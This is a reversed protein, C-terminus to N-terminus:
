SSRQCGLDQDEPMLRCEGLLCVNLAMSRRIKASSYRSTGVTRFANAITFGSVTMFHCRAPKLDYQRQFDLRRPPRGVTGGSIRL